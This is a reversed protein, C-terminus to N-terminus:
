DIKEYYHNMDANLIIRPKDFLKNEFYTRFIANKGFDKYYIEINTEFGSDLKYNGSGFYNSEFTGNKYLILTDPQHPAEVCCIPQQYNKNAYKGYINNDSVPFSITFFVILVLISLCIYLINKKM